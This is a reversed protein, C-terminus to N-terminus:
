AMHGGFEPVLPSISSSFSGGAKAQTFLICVSSSSNEEHYYGHSASAVHVKPVKLSQIAADFAYRLIKRKKIIVSANRAEESLPQPCKITPISFRVLKGLARYKVSCALRCQKNFSREEPGSPRFEGVQSTNRAGVAQYESSVENRV